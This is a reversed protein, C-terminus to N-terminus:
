CSRINVETRKFKISILHFFNFISLQKRFSFCFYFFFLCFLCKWNYNQTHKGFKLLLLGLVMSKKSCCLLFVEFAFIYAVNCFFFDQQSFNLLIFKFMSFCASPSFIHLFTRITFINSVDTRYYFLRLKFSLVALLLVNSLKDSFVQCHFIWKM